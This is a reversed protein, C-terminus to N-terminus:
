RKNKNKMNQATKETQNFTLDQKMTRLITTIDIIWTCLKMCMKRTKEHCVEPHPPKNLM